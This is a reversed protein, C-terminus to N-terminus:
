CGHRALVMVWTNGPGRAVGLEAMAASLMNRRHGPSGQWGALVADLSRQGQAINEAVACWSYGARRVRDGVSAGDVGRHSFYGRQAMDDAHAQAVAELVPSWRLPARGSQRRLHNVKALAPEEGASLPHACFALGATILARRNM